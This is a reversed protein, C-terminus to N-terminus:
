SFPTGSPVLFSIKFCVPLILPPRNPALIPPLMPVAM